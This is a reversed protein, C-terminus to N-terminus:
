LLMLSKAFVDAGNLPLRRLRSPRRSDESIIINTDAHVLDKKNDIYKEKNNIEHRRTHRRRTDEEGQM